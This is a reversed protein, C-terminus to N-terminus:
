ELIIQQDYSGEQTHVKNGAIENFARNRQRLSKEWKDVERHHFKKWLAVPEPIPCGAKLKLPVFHNGDILGIALVKQKKSPPASRLPVFTLCAEPSISVLVHHYMSAVLYGM